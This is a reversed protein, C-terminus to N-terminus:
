PVSIPHGCKFKWINDMHASLLKKLEMPNGYSRDCPFEIPCFAILSVPVWIIEMTVLLLIIRKYFSLVELTIHLAPSHELLAWHGRAVNKGKPSCSIITKVGLTCGPVRFKLPKSSKPM